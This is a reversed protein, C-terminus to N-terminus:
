INYLQLSLPPYFVLLSHSLLEKQFCIPPRHRKESIKRTFISSKSEFAQARLSCLGSFFRVQFHQYFVSTKLTIRLWKQAKQNQWTDKPKEVLRKTKRSSNPKATLKKTKSLAKKLQKTKGHAIQNQRASKSKATLQKTKDNAKQNKRSSNPKAKLKKTKGHAIQNRRSRKPKVM